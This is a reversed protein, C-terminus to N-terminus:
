IRLGAGKEEEGIMRCVGEFIAGDKIVLSRTWINGYIRSVHGLEVRERAVIDGNVTGDIVAVSVDIRADVTAHTDIFITGTKSYVTGSIHGNVRLMDKFSLDGDLESYVSFATSPRQKLNVCSQVGIQGALSGDISMTGKFHCEGTIVPLKGQFNPYDRTASASVPNTSQTNGNNRYLRDSASASHSHVAPKRKVELM